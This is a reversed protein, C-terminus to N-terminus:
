REKQETETIKRVIIEYGGFQVPNGALKSLDVAKLKEIEPNEPKVASNTEVNQKDLATGLVARRFAADARVDYACGLACNFACDAASTYAYYFVWDGLKGDIYKVRCWAYRGCTSSPNGVTAFKGSANSSLVHLETINPNQEQIWALADNVYNIGYIKVGRYTTAPKGGVFVGDKNITIYETNPIDVM